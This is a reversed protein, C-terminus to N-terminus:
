LLDEQALAVVAIAVALNTLAVAAGLVDGTVGGIRRRAARRLGLVPVAAAALVVPAWWGSTLVAVVLVTVAAVVTDAAGLRGLRQGQGDARAPPLWAALVLPAARGVVHGALLIRAVDAFAASGSGATAVLAVRLLLDGALALAGYTGLRSDRMIELRRERTAGGWLGDATDALGDEHLAGTVIVTALVAAVAAVFPGALEDAVWWVGLGVGGVLAGVLPFWAGARDLASGAFPASGVPIRTLFGVAARLAAIM